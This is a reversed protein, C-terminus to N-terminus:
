IGKTKRSGNPQRRHSRPRAPRVPSQLFMSLLRDCPLGTVNVIKQLTELSPNCHRNLYQSVLSPHVDILNAFQEQTVGKDQLWRRLDLEM